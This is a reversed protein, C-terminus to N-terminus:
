DALGSFLARYADHMRSASFLSKRQQLGSLERVWTEEDAEQFDRIANEMSGEVYPDFQFRYDGIIEAIGGRCSCIVPIGADMAELVVYGFPEYLSPIILADLSNLFSQKREGQCWGLFRVKGTLEATERYLLIESLHQPDERGSAIRLEGDVRRFAKVCELLGKRYDMRGLFGFIRRESRFPPLCVDPQRFKMGNPIVAIKAAWGPYLAALKIREAESICVIASAYSCCQEFRFKVEMNEGFPTAANFPEVTPVSHVVYILRRGRLITPDLVESLGYFHLVAMDFSLEGVRHLEDQRVAAIDRDGPYLEARLDPLAQPDYIHIFGTDAEHGAYMENMYSAIGGIIYGGIENTLHVARYHEAYRFTMM